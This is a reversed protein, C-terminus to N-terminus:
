LGISKASLCEQVLNVLADHIKGNSIIHGQIEGQLNYHLNNGHIDTAKGGAEEVIIQMAATEWGQTVPHITADFEGCAVLGGFYAISFVDTTIAKNRALESIVLLPNYLSNFVKPHLVGAYVMAHELNQKDSVCIKKKGLFSGKDREAHWMRQLFPDYIVGAIPVGDKLVAICFTSIPLGHSFPITGDVPDCLIAYETTPIEISKEEGIVRIHPYDRSIAACVDNNITVDTVTLPTDDTKWEKEMGPNFNAIIIDGCEKALSCLYLVDPYYNKM